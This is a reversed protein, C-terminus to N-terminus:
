LNVWDMFSLDSWGGIPTVPRVPRVPKVPRVPRVPRVARVARVPKVPRVSGQVTQNPSWAVVKGNQDLCNYGNVPGYWNGTEASWAHGNRIYAVWNMETDFIHDHSDKMWGVLDCDKDFLAIMIYQNLQNFAYKHKSSVNGANAINKGYRYRLHFHEPAGTKM